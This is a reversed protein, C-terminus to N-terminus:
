AAGARPPVSRRRTPAGRSAAEAGSDAPVPPRRNPSPRSVPPTVERVPQVTAPGPTAPSSPSVQGPRPAYSHCALRERGAVLPALGGCSPCAVPLFEEETLMWTLTLPWSREGRRVRVTVRAAPALV